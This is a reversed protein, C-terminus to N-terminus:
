VGLSKHRGLLFGSRSVSTQKIREDTQKNSTTRFSKVVKNIRQDRQMDGYALHRQDDRFLSLLLVFAFYLQM